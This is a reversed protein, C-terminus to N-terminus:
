SSTKPIASINPWRPSITAIWCYNELYSFRISVYWMFCRGHRCHHVVNTSKFRPLLIIFLMTPIPRFFNPPIDTQMKRNRKRNRWLFFCKRLSFASKPIFHVFYTEFKKWFKEDIPSGIWLEAVSSWRSRKDDPSTTKLTCCSRTTNSYRTM